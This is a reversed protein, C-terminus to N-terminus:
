RAGTCLANQNIKQYDYYTVVKKINLITEKVTGVNYWLGCMKDVGKQLIKQLTLRFVDLEIVFFFFPCIGGKGNGHLEIDM